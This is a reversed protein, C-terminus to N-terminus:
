YIRSDLRGVLIKAIRKGIFQDHGKRSGASGTCTLIWDSDMASYGVACNYSGNVAQLANRGFESNGTGTTNHDMATRGVATNSGGTTNDKLADVGIGTNDSGSTSAFMANAGAAVNSNGIM